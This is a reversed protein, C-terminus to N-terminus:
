YEAVVKGTAAEILVYPGAAAPTGLLVGALFALVLPRFRFAAFM